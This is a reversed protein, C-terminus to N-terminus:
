GAVADLESSQVHRIVLRNPLCVIPAGGQLFGMSVCIKDPCGAETVHIKGGEIRIINYSGGFDIRIERDSTHSMDITYLVEGNSIIRVTQSAPATCITIVTGAIAALLIVAFAIYAIKLGKSM